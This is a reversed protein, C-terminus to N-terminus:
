YSWVNPRYPGAIWDLHIYRNDMIGKQNIGIGRAGLILANKILEYSQSGAILIDVALGSTHPGARGSKSVAENHKPCRYASSLRLPFGCLARLNELTEVLMPQPQGGCGCHCMLEHDSFHESM